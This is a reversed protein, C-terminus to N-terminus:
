KVIEKLEEQTIARFHYTSGNRTLTRINPFYKCFVTQTLDAFRTPDCRHCFSIISPSHLYVLDKYIFVPVYSCHLLSESFEERTLSKYLSYYKVAQKAIEDEKPM